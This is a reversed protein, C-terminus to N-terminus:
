RIQSVMVSLYAGAGRSGYSDFALLYSKFDGEQRAAATGLFAAGAEDTLGLAVLEKGALARAQQEDLPADYSASRVSLNWTASTASSTTHDMGMMRVTAAGKEKGCALSGSDTVECTYGQATLTPKLAATSAPSPGNPPISPADSARVQLGDGYTSLSAEAGLEEARLTAESRAAAVVVDGRGDFLTDGVVRAVAETIPAPDDVGYALLSVTKVAGDAMDIRLSARQPKEGAVFYHCRTLSNPSGPVSVYCTWGEEEGLAATLATAAGETMPKHDGDGESAPGSDDSSSDDDTASSTSGVSGSSDDDGGLVKMGVFVMAVILAVVLVVGGTVFAIKRGHNGRSTVGEPAWQATGQGPASPYGPQTPYGGQGPPPGYSAWPAGQPPPGQPPPPGWGQPPPGQPPPGWGQAPPGQPPPGQPPPGWSQTPPGQSRGGRPPEGEPSPGQPPVPPQPGNPNSM